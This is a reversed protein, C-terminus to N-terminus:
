LGANGAGATGGGGRPQWTASWPGARRSYSRREALGARSGRPWGRARAGLAAEGNRGGRAAAVHGAGPGRAALLKATGGGGRPQWTALGPRARRSYSRRKAVGARGGRAHGAMTGRAALLKATGGGGRPQWTALGPGARRSYSRRERWGEAGGNRWGGEAAVHGSRSPGGVLSEYEVKALGVPAPADRTKYAERKQIWEATKQKDPDFRVHEGADGGEPEVQKVVDGRTVLRHFDRLKVFNDKHHWEVDFLQKSYTAQHSAKIQHGKKQAALRANEPLCLVDVRVKDGPKLPFNYKASPDAGSGNERLRSRVTSLVSAPLDAAALDAPRYGHAANVSHNATWVAKKFSTAMYGGPKGELASYM